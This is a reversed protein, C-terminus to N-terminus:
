VYCASLQYVAHFFTSILSYFHCEQSNLIFNSLCNFLFILSLNSLVYLVWSFNNHVHQLYGFISLFTRSIFGASFLLINDHVCQYFWLLSNFPFLLFSIFSSVFSWLHYFMIITKQPGISSFSNSSLLCNFCFRLRAYKCNQM